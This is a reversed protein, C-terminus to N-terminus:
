VEEVRVIIKGQKQKAFEWFYHCDIIDECDDTIVGCKTLADQIFKFGSVLGDRDPKRASFRTYSIKARKLPEAPRNMGLAVHVAHMWRNKEHTVLRFHRRLLTNTMRPLGHLEFQISYSM